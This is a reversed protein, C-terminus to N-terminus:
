GGGGADAIPTPTVTTAIGLRNMCFPNTAACTTCSIALDQGPFCPLNTSGSNSTSAAAFDCNPQIAAAPNNSSVPFAVLCGRCADIPFGFNDSEVSEGGTTHGFFRVTSVIRDTGMAGLTSSTTSDVIVLGLSAFGPTTGSSPPVTAAVPKTYTNLQNGSSDTITVVAGEIKIYSTETHPQTPDGRPVIQNAVLFVATYEPTLAVDMTGSSIVPQTPDATFTCAMGATVFNPALVDYVFLTSNDHVCAPFLAAALVSGGVLLLGTSVYGWVRKM